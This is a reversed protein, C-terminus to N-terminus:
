VYEDLDVDLWAGPMTAVHPKLEEVTMPPDKPGCAKCAWLVECVRGGASEGLIAFGGVRPSFKEGCLDCKSITRAIHM